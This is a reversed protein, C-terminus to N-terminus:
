VADAGITVLGNDVMETIWDAIDKRLTIEDVTFEGLLKEVAATTDGNESLLQWIRMGLENLAFYQESAMDLLVAEDHIQQFIVNPSLTIHTPLHKTM